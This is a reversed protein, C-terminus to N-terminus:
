DNLRRTCELGVVHKSGDYAVLVLQGDTIDGDEMVDRGEKFSIQLSATNLGMADADVTYRVTNKRNSKRIEENFAKVLTRPEADEHSIVMVHPTRTKGHLHNNLKVKYGEGECEFRSAFASASTLGIVFLSVVLRNM